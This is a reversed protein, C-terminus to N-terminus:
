SLTKALIALFHDRLILSFEITYLVM